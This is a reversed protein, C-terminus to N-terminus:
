HSEVEPSKLSISHIKSDTDRQVTYSYKVAPKGFMMVYGIKQNEPICLKAKMDTLVNVIAWKGLGCWVTGLGASAALLEFYSLAIVCDEQHTHCKTEDATAILMHPAHRFVNDIRKTEWAELFSEFFEMGAPLSSNKVCQAIGAYVEKRIFKMIEKDDVVFFNTQMANVGTPAHLATSLLKNLLHKDVNEDKYKRISRRGKALIELEALKPFNNNIKVSNEPLKGLISVAGKPCVALCHQCKVCEEEKGEIIFPVGDKIGIIHMPCDNACQSCKICKASDVKFDIM